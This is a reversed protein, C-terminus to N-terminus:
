RTCVDSCGIIRFCGTGQRPPDGSVFLYNLLFVADSIDISGDGNVELLSVHAPSEVSLGSCPLPDGGLFLRGLLSIVDSIDLSADQNSDGALQWGGEDGPSTGPTGGSVLSARWSAALPWSGLPARPDLITLSDGGGDTSPYWGDSYSFAHIPEKLPGELVVLEGANSFNGNYEGAIRVTGQGYLSAFAALNKVVLVHEGPLLPSGDDPFEFEVGSTLAFGALSLAEDGVNKLEAFEFDDAAFPYTALEDPPHYMIETIVLPPPTVVYTAASPASWDSTKDAGPAAAVRARAVVRANASLVIPTTYLEASGSVGGGLLRPDTGDRTFYVDGADASIELVFGPEIPGGVRSFQPARVFQSDIWGARDSLWDIVHDIEARWASPSILDWRADDRTQAAAIEDEMAEVTATVSAVDFAGQRLEDWRDIWHQCFDPDTFLKDWWPEDFYQTGERTASIPTWSFPDDDRDDRSDICRDFDWLPGFALKRERAKFMYTSLRLSDVNKLFVGFIHHDIWSDVDIFARYGTDPDRFGPSNISQVLSNMHGRIWTSQHSTINEEKPYVYGITREGASFGNDGPDLRDIKLIYGGSVRPEDRDAPTLEEVDVRDADRKIKEMFTYIGVFDSSDVVGDDTNLYVEIFRTRPAYRGAQRSLDFALANRIYSRDWNHVGFFVWDSESPMGLPSRSLDEDEDDWFEFAYSKKEFRDNASSAGRIKFGGRGTLSPSDDLRSTGGVADFFMTYLPTLFEENAAGGGFNDLIVLPLNSTVPSVTNSVRLYGASVVPSPAAGALFGRVRVLTSEELDIPEIYLESGEEPTTGDLTYRFEVGPKGGDGEVAVVLSGVFATAEPALAPTPAVADFMTGVNARGPTPQPYFGRLTPDVGTAQVADLEPVILFDRDSLSENLGHIALVNEGSVLTGPNAAVMEEFVVADVDSRSGTSASEWTPSSPANRAAIRQGNIYAVFGADYKMRLNFADIGATTQLQFPVRIYATASTLFMSATVNTSIPGAANFVFDADYGVGTSGADWASADFDAQTWSFALTGDGPILVQAGAGSALLGTVGGGGQKLGYSVDAIQPPYPAYEWIKTVGDPAVLLLPEGASSLKFNLHLEDDPDRRDKDSAFVVLFDGPALVKPPFRWKTLNAPDDTAFVGDLDVVSAGANFVEFWDVRDGDRDELGSRNLAMLESIVLDGVDAVVQACLFLAGVLGGVNLARRRFM